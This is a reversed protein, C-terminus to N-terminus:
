FSPVQLIGRLNRESDAFSDLLVVIKQVDNLNKQFLKTSPGEVDDKLKLIYKCAIELNNLGHMVALASESSKVNSVATLYSKIENNILEDVNNIFSCITM